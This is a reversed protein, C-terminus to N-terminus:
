ISEFSQSPNVGKKLIKLFLTLYWCSISSVKRFFFTFISTSFSSPYVGKRYVNLVQCYLYASISMSYLALMLELDFFPSKARLNATSLLSISLTLYKISFPASGRMFSRFFLFRRWIAWLWEGFEDFASRLISFISMASFTPIFSLSM